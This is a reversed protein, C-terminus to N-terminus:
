RSKLYSPFCLQVGTQSIWMEKHMSNHRFLGSKNWLNYANVLREKTPKWAAHTWTTSIKCTKHIISKKRPHQTSLFSKDVHQLENHAQFYTSKDSVREAGLFRTLQKWAAAQKRCHFQLTQLDKYCNQEQKHKGKWELGAKVGARPFKGKKYGMQTHLHQLHKSKYCSYVAKVM